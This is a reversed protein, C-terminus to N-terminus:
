WSKSQFIPNVFGDRGRRVRTCRDRSMIATKSEVIKEGADSVFLIERREIVSIIQFDPVCDKRCAALVESLAFRVSPLSRLCILCAELKKTM